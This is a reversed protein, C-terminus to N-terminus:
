SSSLTHQLKMNLASIEHRMLDWSTHGIAHKVQFPRANAECHPCVFWKQAQHDNTTTTNPVSASLSGTTSNFNNGHSHSPMARVSTDSRILWFPRWPATECMHGCTTCIPLLTGDSTYTFVNRLSETSGSAIGAYHDMYSARMGGEEWRREVPQNTLPARPGRARAHIKDAAMHTLRQFFQMDVTLARRWEGTYGDIAQVFSVGYDALTDEINDLSCPSFKNPDRLSRLPDCYKWDEFPTGDIYVGEAVALKSIAGEIKQGITMRFEGNPTTIVDPQRGYYPGTIITPMDMSDAIKGCVGKQCRSAFKDGPEVPRVIRMTVKVTNNGNNDVTRMTNQVVACEYTRCKFITSADFRREYGMQDRRRITRGIIADGHFVQTGPAVFGDLDLKDYSCEQLSHTPGLQAGDNYPYLPHEFKDDTGRCFERYTRYVTAVLTGLELSKRNWIVADEMNHGDWAMVCILANTGAPTVSDYGHVQGIRTSVLPRQPYWLKYANVPTWVSANTATVGIAQKAMAGQYTNRPTQNHNAGPIMATLAGFQQVSSLIMHSCRRTHADDISTGILHEMAENADMYEVVGTVVMLHWAYAPPAGADTSYRALLQQLFSLRDVRIYPTLVVGTDGSVHVGQWSTHVSTCWPIAGYRRAHRLKSVCWEVDNTFAIIDGNVFVLSQEGEDQEYRLYHDLTSFERVCPHKKAESTHYLIHNVVRQLSTTPTGTRVYTYLAFSEVLGCKQSEPTETSCVYAFQSGDLRRPGKAKGQPDIPKEQRDIYGNICQPSNVNLFHVHEENAQDAKPNYTLTDKRFRDMPSMHKAGYKPVNQQIHLASMHKANRGYHKTFYKHFSNLLQQRQLMALTMHPMECMKFGEFDRSHTTCIGQQACLMYRCLQGLYLLKKHRTTLSDDTGMQPLVENTVQRHLECYWEVASVGKMSFLSQGVLVHLETSTLEYIPDRQILNCFNTYVQYEQVPIRTGPWILRLLAQPTECGLLRLVVTLRLLQDCFPIAVYIQSQPTTHLVLTSTSRYKGFWAISRVECKISTTVCTKSRGLFYQRDVSLNSAKTILTSTENQSPDSATTSLLQVLRTISTCKNLKDTWLRCSYPHPHYLDEQQQQQVGNSTSTTNKNTNPPSSHKGQVYAITPSVRINTKSNDHDATQQQQQQQQSEATILPMNSRMKRFPKMSYINGNYLVFYGGPVIPCTSRVPDDAPLYADMTAPHRTVCLDSGVMVPFHQLTVNAYRIRRLPRHTHKPPGYYLALPITPQQPHTTHQEHAQRVTLYSQLSEITRDRLWFIWSPGKQLNPDDACMQEVAREVGRTISTRIMHHLTADDIDKDQTKQPHALFGGAHSNNNTTTEHLQAYGDSVAQVAKTSPHTEVREELVSIDFVFTCYYPVSRLHAEAPTLLRMVSDNEQHAPLLCRVNEYSLSHRVQEESEHTGGGVVTQYPDPQQMIEQLM